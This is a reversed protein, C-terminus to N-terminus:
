MPNSLRKEGAMPKKLDKFYASERHELFKSDAKQFLQTFPSDKVINTVNRTSKAIGKLDVISGNGRLSM